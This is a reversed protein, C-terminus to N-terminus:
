NFEIVSGSFKLDSNGMAGGNYFADSPYWSTTNAVPDAIKFTHNEKNVGCLVVYRAANLDNPTAISKLLLICAKGANMEAFFKDENYASVNTVARFTSGTTTNGNSYFYRTAKTTDTLSVRTLIDWIDDQTVSSDNAHYIAYLAEEDTVSSAASGERALRTNALMQACYVWDWELVDTTIHTINVEAVNSAAAAIIM